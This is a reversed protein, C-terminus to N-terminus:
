HNKLQPYSFQPNLSYTATLISHSPSCLTPSLFIYSPWVFSSSELECKDKCVHFTEGKTSGGGQKYKYKLPIEYELRLFWVFIPLRLRLFFWVWFKCCASITSKTQAVVMPVGAWRGSLSKISLSSAATSFETKANGNELYFTKFKRKKKHTLKKISNNTNIFVEAQVGGVLSFSCKFVNYHGSNISSSKESSLPM